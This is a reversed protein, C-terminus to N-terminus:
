DEIDEEEVVETSFISGGVRQEYFRQRAVEIAGEKTEATIIFQNPFEFMEITFRKM